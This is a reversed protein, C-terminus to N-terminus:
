EVVTVMIDYRRNAARGEETSSDAVPAYFGKGAASVKGGNVGSAILQQVVAIAKDTSDEYAAQSDDENGGAHGVVTIDAAPYRSFLAALRGIIDVGRPTLAYGDSTLLGEALSVQLRNAGVAGVVFSEGPLFNLAQNLENQITNMKMAVAQQSNLDRGTRAVVRNDYTAPAGADGAPSIDGEVRAIAAERASLQTELERLEAERKSVTMTREALTQQLGTVEEGTNTLLKQNQALLENYRTLLSQYSDNLAKNTATLTEMKRLSAAQEADTNDVEEYTTLARLDALSDAEVTKNRYYDREIQLAEYQDKPVCSFLLFLSAPLLLLKNVTTHNKLLYARNASSSRQPLLLEGTRINSNVAPSLTAFM